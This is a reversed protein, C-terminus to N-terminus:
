AFLEPANPVKAALPVAKAEIPAKAQPQPGRRKHKAFVPKQVQGGTASHAPLGGGLQSDHKQGPFGALPLTLAAKAQTQTSRLGPQSRAAVEAGAPGCVALAPAQRAPQKHPLLQPQQHSSGRLQPVSTKPAEKPEGPGLQLLM